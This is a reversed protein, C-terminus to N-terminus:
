LINMIELLSNIEYTANHEKKLRDPNFWVTDIGTEKAGKIDIDLDDGIVLSNVPLAGTQLLVKEFFIKEPKKCGIEESTFIKDFYKNLKCNKIKKYQVEKFGNTVIYVSYKPKLYELLEITGPFLDTNEPSMKIYDESISIAMKRNVFNVTKLTDYFRRWSLEDKSIINNRYEEWLDNNIDKYINLFIDFDQFYENLRYKNYIDSFTKRTNTDFDWLTRDLDFYINKYLKM